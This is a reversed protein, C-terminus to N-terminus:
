MDDGGHMLPLRQHGLQGVREESKRAPVPRHFFEELREGPRLEAKVSFRAPDQADGAVVIREKAKQILSPIAAEEFLLMSREEHAPAPRTRKEIAESPKTGTGPGAPPLARKGGRRREAPLDRDVIAHIVHHPPHRAAPDRRIPLDGREGPDRVWTLDTVGEM